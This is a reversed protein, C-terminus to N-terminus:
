GFIEKVKEFFGSAIPGPSDESLKQFEELLEKQRKSLKRPVEILVSIVLNGRRGSSLSAVGEGRLVFERGSATGAPIVLEKKGSLTPVEIRAGIAAQPFTIPVECFLNAGERVFFPHEQVSLAVYLDGTPGGGVGTEGEGRLKLRTGTEVGPPVKVKLSRTERVSGTGSCKVCPDKIVQGTGDCRGCTRRISFYGQQITVQGRGNCAGCKEPQTGKRAGTGNCEGCFGMRPVVIEKETGFIAEDFTIGLDYRLDAGRRIRTGGGVGGFIGGLFDSLIDEVGMGHIDEFGGFGRGAPGDHGFRNYQARKESDSLVSYAENLEKFREEAGSDSSNRDPHYELALKRFAKKIDEQSAERSVGLVEYYDRKTAM